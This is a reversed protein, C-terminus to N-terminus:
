DITLFVLFWNHYQHLFPLFHYVLLWAEDAGKLMEFRAHSDVGNCAKGKVLLMGM